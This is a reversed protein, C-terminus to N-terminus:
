LIWATPVEMEWCAIAPAFCLLIASTADPQWGRVTPVKHFLQTQEHLDGRLQPAHPWQQVLGEVLPREVVKLVDQDRQVVEDGSAGGHEEAALIGVVEVLHRRGSWFQV